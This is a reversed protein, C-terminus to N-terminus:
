LRYELMELATGRMSLRQYEAAVTGGMSEAIKRSAANRREVVYRLYTYELHRDAWAKLLAVAERGYGRNQAAAKIWVGVEPTGSKLGRLGVGGLFEESGAHLIVMELDEGAEVKAVMSAIVELTEEIATPAKPTMYTTIAETFERFIDAAYDRSVPVLKLRESKTL